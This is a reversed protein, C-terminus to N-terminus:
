PGMRKVDLAASDGEFKTILQIKQIGKQRHLLVNGNAFRSRFVFLAIALYMAFQRRFVGNFTLCM